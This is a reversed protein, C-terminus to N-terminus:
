VIKYSIIFFDKPNMAVAFKYTEYVNFANACKFRGSIIVFVQGDENKWEVEPYEVYDFTEPYNVKTRLFQKTKVVMDFENQYESKQEPKKTLGYVLGAVGLIGIIILVILWKKM